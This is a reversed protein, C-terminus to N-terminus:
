LNLLILFILALAVQWCVMQSFGLATWLVLHEMDPRPPSAPSVPARKSRSGNSQKMNSWQFLINHVDEGISTWIQVLCRHMSASRCVKASCWRFGSEPLGGRPNDCLYWLVKSSTVVRVLSTGKVLNAALCSKEPVLLDFTKLYISVTLIMPSDVTMTTFIRQPM